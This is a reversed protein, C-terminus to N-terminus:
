GEGMMTTVRRDMNGGELDDAAAKTLVHVELDGDVLDVTVTGPTLTISNAYVVHGLETKQSARVRVLRPSIPLKPNLIILAVEVNTKAIEWGLWAWYPLARWSLHIPHGERDVVDMRHAVWVVLVCSAAGLALLLPKYHGSLLLWLGYMVLGLSITHFLRERLISGKPAGVFVRVM